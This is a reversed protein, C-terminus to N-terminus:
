LQIISEGNKHDGDRIKSERTAPKGTLLLLLSPKSRPKEFILCTPHTM